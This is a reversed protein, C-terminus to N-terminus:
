NRFFIFPEDRVSTLRCKLLKLNQSEATQASKSLHSSVIQAGMDSETWGDQHQQSAFRYGIEHLDPILSSSADECNGGGRRGKGTEEIDEQLSGNSISGGYVIREVNPDVRFIVAPLCEFLTDYLRFTGLVWNETIIYRDFFCDLNFTAFWNGFSLKEGM